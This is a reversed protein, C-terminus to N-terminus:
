AAKKLPTLTFNKPQVINGAMFDQVYKDIMQMRLRNGSTDANDFVYTFAQYAEIPSFGSGLYMYLGNFDAQIENAMNPNLWFHSYEHMLIIMRMAVTYKVFYKKAVEIIGSKNGIRAPTTLPRGKEDRCVDVYRIRFNGNDSEYIGSDDKKGAEEWTKLVGANEAFQQAFKLFARTKYDTEIDWIKAGTKGFKQVAFTKDNKKNGVARNFVVIRLEKPSSPLMIDFKERLLGDKGPTKIVGSHDIYKTHKKNKDMAVIRVKVPRRSAVYVSITQPQRNTNLVYEM